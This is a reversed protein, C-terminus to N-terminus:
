LVGPAASAALRGRLIPEPRTSSHAPPNTRGAPRHYAHRHASIVASYTASGPTSATATSPAPRHCQASRRAPRPQSASSPAAGPRSIKGTSSAIVARITTTSSSSRENSLECSHPQRRARASRARITVQHHQSPAPISPM